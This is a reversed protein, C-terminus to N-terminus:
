IPLVSILFQLVPPQKNQSFTECRAVGHAINKNQFARALGSGCGGRGAQESDKESKREADSLACNESM